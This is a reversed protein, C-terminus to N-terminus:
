IKNEPELHIGAIMHQITSLSSKRAFLGGIAHNYTAAKFIEMQEAKQLLALKDRSNPLAAVDNTLKTEAIEQLKEVMNLWAAPHDSPFLAKHLKMDSSLEHLYSYNHMRLHNFIANLCSLSIREDSMEAVIYEYHKLVDDEFYMKTRLNVLALAAYIKDAPQNSQEIAAIIEDKINCRRENSRYHDITAFFRTFNIQSPSTSVTHLLDFAFTSILEQYEKDAFAVMEETTLRRRGSDM